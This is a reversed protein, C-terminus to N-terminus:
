RKGKSRNMWSSYLVCLIYYTTYKTFLNSKLQVNYHMKGIIRREFDRVFFRSHRSCIRLAFDSYLADCQPTTKQMQLFRVWVCVNASVYPRLLFFHFHFLTHYFGQILHFCFHTFSGNSEYFALSLSHTDTYYLIKVACLAIMFPHKASQVSFFAASTNTHRHRKNFQLLVVFHLFFSVFRVFPSFCFPFMLLFFIGFFCYLYMCVTCTCGCLRRVLVLKM